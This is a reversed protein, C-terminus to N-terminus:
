DDYWEGNLHELMTQCVEEKFGKEDIDGSLLLDLANIYVKARTLTNWAAQVVASDESTFKRDSEKLSKLKEILSDLHIQEYDFYGGSM